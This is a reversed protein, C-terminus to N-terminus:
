VSCPAAQSRNAEKSKCGHSAECGTRGRTAHPLKKSSDSRGFTRGPYSICSGSGKRYAMVLASEVNQEVGSDQQGRLTPHASSLPSSIRSSLCLWWLPSSAPLKLPFQPGAWHPSEMWLTHQPHRRPSPSHRRSCRVGAPPGGEGGQQSYGHFFGRM